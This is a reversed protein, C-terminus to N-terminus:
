PTTSENTQKAAESYLTNISDHYSHLEETSQSCLCSCHKLCLLCLNRDTVWPRENSNLEGRGFRGTERRGGFARIKGKWLIKLSFFTFQQDAVMVILTHHAYVAIWESVVSFFVCNCHTKDIDKDCYLYTHPINTINVLFWIHLFQAITNLLHLWLIVTRNIWASSWDWPGPWVHAFAFHINHTLSRGVFKFEM